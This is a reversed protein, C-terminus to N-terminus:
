DNFVNMIEKKSKDISIHTHTDLTIQVTSHGTQSQIVKPDVGKSHLMTTYSHRFDHLKIYPLNSKDTIRKVMRRISNESIFGVDGFVQWEISFSKQENRKKFWLYLQEKLRKPIHVIRISSESKPTTLITGEGRIKSQAQKNINLTSNKFDVDQWSLGRLEGIRLGSYFLTYFITKELINDTHEIFKNFMEENYIIVQKPKDKLTKRFLPLTNIYKVKFNFQDDSYDFISKLRTLLKNKYNHSHTSEEIDKYWSELTLRSVDRLKLDKFHPRIHKNIQYLYGTYTTPKVKKNLYVLYEDILDDVQINSISVERNQYSSTFVAESDLADRRLDFGGKYKQIREGTFPDDVYVRFYWKGTKNNKYVAM